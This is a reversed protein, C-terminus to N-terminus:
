GGGMWLAVLEPRSHVGLRKFVAGVHSKVTYPSVRLHKAIAKDHHLTVVALVVRIQCPTLREALPHTLGEELVPAPLPKAAVVPKRREVSAAAAGDIAYLLAPLTVPKPLSYDVRARVVADNLRQPSM